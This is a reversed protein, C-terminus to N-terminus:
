LHSFSVLSFVATYCASGPTVVVPIHSSSGQGYDEPLLTHNPTLSSSMGKQSRHRLARPLHREMTRDDLRVDKLWRERNSRPKFPQYLERPVNNTSIPIPAHSQTSHEVHPFYTRQVCSQNEVLFNKAVADMDDMDDIEDRKPKEILTRLRKDNNYISRDQESPPSCGARASDFSEM